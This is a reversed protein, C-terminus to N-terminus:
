CCRGGVEVVLVVIVLFAFCSGDSSWISKGVPRHSTNSGESTIGQEAIKVSNTGNPYVVHCKVQM